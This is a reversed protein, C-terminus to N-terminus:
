AQARAARLAFGVVAVTAGVNLSDIGLDMPIRARHNAMTLTRTRLGAGECGFAAAVRKGPKVVRNLVMTIDDVQVDPTFAILAIGQAQMGMLTSEWSTSRAWPMHLVAAMSTRVSRRYLPDACDPSLVVGAFGMAAAARFALGVNTPEVFGELLAIDGSDGVVEAVTLERPREVSALVGRHIHYGVLAELVEPEAAFVEIVQGSGELLSLVRDLRRSEVLVSRIVMHTELVRELVFFSEAIFFGGDAEVSVRRQMDTLQLYDRLKQDHTDTVRIVRVNPPTPKPGGRSTHRNPAM